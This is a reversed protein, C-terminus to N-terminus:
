FSGVVIVSGGAPSAGFSASLATDKTRLVPRSSPWLIYALGAAAFAGGGALLGIGANGFTDARAASAHLSSCGPAAAACSVNAAALADHQSNASGSATQAIGLFTAGVGLALVGATGLVIGPVLNRRPAEPVPALSLTVDQEFGASVSLVQRGDVSGPLRAELTVPGPDVFVESDLPATGLLHGDVFVQAGPPSVIVHLTSVRKKAKELRAEVAARDSPKGRVPFQRIAYSLLEAAAVPKGLDLELAGLNSAIDYTKQIEWAQRYLAEASTLKEEDYLKNAQRYLESAKEVRAPSIPTTSTTPTTPTTPTDARAALPASAAGFLALALATTQVTRTM